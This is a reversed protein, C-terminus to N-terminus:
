FNVNVVILDVGFNYVQFGWRRYAVRRLRGGVGNRRDRGHRNGLSDPSDVLAPRRDDLELVMEGQKLQIGVRMLRFGHEGIGAREGWALRHSLQDHRVIMEIMGSSEPLRDGLSKSDDRPACALANKALHRRM